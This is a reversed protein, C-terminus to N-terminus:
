LIVVPSIQDPPIWLKEPSPLIRVDGCNFAEMEAPTCLIFPDENNNALMKEALSAAHVSESNILFKM